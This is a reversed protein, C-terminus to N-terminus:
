LNFITKNLHYSTYHNLPLILNRQKYDWQTVDDSITYSILNFLITIILAIKKAVFNFNPNYNKSSIKMKM